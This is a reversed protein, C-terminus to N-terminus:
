ARQSQALLSAYEDHLRRKEARAALEIEKDAGPSERRIYVDLSGDPNFTLKDRDGIAFRDIPNATFLQREDYMTLSWFGRM